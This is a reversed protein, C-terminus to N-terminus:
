QTLSLLAALLHGTTPVAVGAADECLVRFGVFPADPHWWQSKPFQPDTANWEPSPFERAAPHVKEAPDKFSGGCVVPRGDLSQCWEAVNGLMDYLGLTNPRKKGVPHTKGEANDAYWAHVDLWAKDRIPGSPLENARCAYEWEAETPLRFKKGTKLSLWRCYQQAAHYTMSLAPYGSHGWGRDPAGYPRSPRAVADASEDAGEPLDLRYLFVDYEDWTVETKGLWFGKITMRRKTGDAATVECTGSPVFVLEFRVTTNPLTVSCVKPEPKSPAGTPLSPTVVLCSVFGVFVFSWQALIRWHALSQRHM